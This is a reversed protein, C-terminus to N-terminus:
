GKPRHARAMAAEAAARMVAEPPEMGTWLRFALAAQRVLMGLGDRAEALGRARAAKLFPTLPPNYIVDYAVADARVLSWPVLAAVGDGPAAGTMGASTAQVLVDARGVRSEWAARESEGSAEPYIQISAGLAHVRAAAASGEVQETSTWARATVAIEPFGLQRAAAIAALAAGGSGIVVVSSRPRDGLADALEAALAGADTNHAVLRAEGPRDPGAPARCLVNAAGVLAASPAVEDALELATRKHPVTINVGGLDGRRLAEMVERLAEPSPVDIAEYTHPLGLAAIAAGQIAPSISHGVPHGLLALRLRETM